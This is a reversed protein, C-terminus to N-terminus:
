MALPRDTWFFGILEQEAAKSGAPIEKPSIDKFAAMPVAFIKKTNVLGSLGSEEKPIKLTYELVNKDGNVNEIWNPDIFTRRLFQIGDPRVINIRELGSDRYNDRLWQSQSEVYHRFEEKDVPIPGQDALWKSIEANAGFVSFIVVRDGQPWGVSLSSVGEKIESRELVTRFAVISDHLLEQTNSGSHMVTPFYSYQDYPRVYEAGEPFTASGGKQELIERWLQMNSEILMREGKDSVFADTNIIWRESTSDYGEPHHYSIYIRLGDKASITYPVFQELATQEQKQPLLKEYEEQIGFYEYTLPNGNFYFIILSKWDKLSLAGDIRFIKTYASNKGAKKLDTDWRQLIGEEDYGRIAGDFHRFTRKDQDYISHIYRNGYYESSVGLSPSERIEEAELVREDGDTKWWFDTMAVGSFFKQDDSCTHRAVGSAIESVDDKFPPGYCYELEASDRYTPGLGVMDSDLAIRLNIDENAALALFSDIFYANAKNIRSLSRRFFQHCFLAFDTKKSRFVGWGAYDFEKLLDSLYILGDKDKLDFLGPFIEKAIGPRLYAVCNNYCFHGEDSLHGKLLNRFNDLHPSCNEGYLNLLHNHVGRRVETWDDPSEAYLFRGVMRSLAPQMHLSFPYIWGQPRHFDHSILSPMGRLATDYMGQELAGVTFAFGDRNLRDSNLVGLDTKM